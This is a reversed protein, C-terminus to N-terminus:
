RKMCNEDAGQGYLFIKADRQVIIINM